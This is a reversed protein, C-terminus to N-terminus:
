HMAGDPQRTQDTLALGARTRADFIQLASRSTAALASDGNAEANHVCRQLMDHVKETGHPGALTMETWASAVIPLMDFCKAIVQVHPTDASSLNPDMMVM